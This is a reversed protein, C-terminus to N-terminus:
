DLMLTHGEDWNDLASFDDIQNNRLDLTTLLQLDALVSIDRIQNNGLYLNDLSQLGALPSIDSIQNGELNLYLLQTLGSLPLIDEIQNNRLDLRTLKRMGALASIDEIQNDALILQHLHKLNSLASIDSVQNGELILNDLNTLNALASIDSIQNGELILVRINVLEGLSSIDTINMGLFANGLDMYEWVDSLMIDGEEMRLYRRMAQELNEDGWEMVHDELGAEDWPIFTQIPVPPEEEKVFGPIDSMDFAKVTIEAQGGEVSMAATEGESIVAATPEESEQGIMCEVKGELLYIRMHESDPVEIWGCTGRIGVAMTSTRIDMTEDDALPESIDFYLNGSNLFVELSNGEKQIEIDSNQDMKILKVDDLNIWAYSEPNTEMQYGSYLNMDVFPELERAKENRVVAEGETRALKM